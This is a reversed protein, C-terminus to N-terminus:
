KTATDPGGDGHRDPFRGHTASWWGNAALGWVPVLIGFALGTFPRVGAAVFAVVTQVALCGQFWWRLRKPATSMLFLDNVSIAEHRSRNIARLLGAGMVITGLGFLVLCIGVFTARIPGDFAVAAAAAIVFVVTGALDIRLVEAGEGDPLGRGSM